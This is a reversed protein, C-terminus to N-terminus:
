KIDKNSYRNMETHLQMLVMKNYLGEAINLEM